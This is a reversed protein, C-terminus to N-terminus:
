SQPKEPDELLRELCITPDDDDAFYGEESSEALDTWEQSNSWGTKVKKPKQL